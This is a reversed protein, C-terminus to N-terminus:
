SLREAPIVFSAPDLEAARYREWPDDGLKWGAPMRARVGAKNLQHDDEITLV